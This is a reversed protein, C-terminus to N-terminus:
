QAVPTSLPRSPYVQRPMPPPPPLTRIVSYYPEETVIENLPINEMLEQGAPDYRHSPPRSYRASPQITAFSCPICTTLVKIVRELVKFYWCTLTSAIAILICLFVTFIKYLTTMVPSITVSHLTAGIAEQSPLLVRGTSKANLYEDVKYNKRIDRLLSLLTERGSLESPSYVGPSNFSLDPLSGININDGPRPLTPLNFQVTKNNLLIVNDGMEFYFPSSPCEIPTYDDLIEHTIPTMYGSKQDHSHLFLVPQEIMCEEERSKFMYHDIEMCSFVSIVDGNLRAQYRTNPTGLLAQILLSPSGGAALSRLLGLIIQNNRCVSCHLMQISFSLNSRILDYLFQFEGNTEAASKFSVQPHAGSSDNASRRTRITLNLKAQVEQTTAIGPFTNNVQSFILGQSSTGLKLDCLEISQLQTIAINLQPCSIRLSSSGINGTALCFTTAGQKLRCSNQVPRPNWILIGLETPCLGATSNCNDTLKTPVQISNDRTNIGITLMTFYYNTVSSTQETPWSYATNPTLRTGFYGDSLRELKNGLPSIKTHILDRCQEPSVYVKHDATTDTHAGFFFWTKTTTTKVAFCEYSPLTVANIDEFFFTLGIVQSEENTPALPCQITQPIRWNIGDIWSKCYYLPTPKKELSNFLSNIIRENEIDKPNGPAPQPKTVNNALTLLILHCWITFVQLQM